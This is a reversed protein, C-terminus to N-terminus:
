FKIPLKGYKKVTQLITFFSERWRDEPVNETIGIIFRDGPAAEKLIKKTTEEIVSAKELHVSSPFNMFFVKGEWIKRAEAVTMDTDPAPTFAEIWDLKSRGVEQAWIKNNADLHCGAMKGNAHLIGAIEEWHPLVHEMFRQKGLIEPTYNGGCQVILAPSKAVISYIKRNNESMAECLRLIREKREAWEISFIEVGMFSHIIDHIPAGPAVTKFFAEGGIQTQSKIFTEYDPLFQRGRIMYELADYDQPGKFLKDSVWSTTETKELGLEQKVTISLNGEPTKTIIDTCLMGDKKTTIEETVVGTSVTRYVPSADIICMGGDRLVREMECQPIRWGKLAFPVFDVFQGKFVAEIKESCKM